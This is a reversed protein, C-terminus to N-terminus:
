ARSKDKTSGVEFVGFYRLEIRTDSREETLMETM